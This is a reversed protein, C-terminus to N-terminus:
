SCPAQLPVDKWEGRDVKTLVNSIALNKLKKQWHILTALYM